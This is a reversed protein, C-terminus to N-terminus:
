SIIREEHFIRRNEEEAVIQEGGLEDVDANSSYTVRDTPKNLSRKNLTKLLQASTGTDSALQRIM